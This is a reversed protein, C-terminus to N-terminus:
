YGAEEEQACSQCVIRGSNPGKSIVTTAENDCRRYISDAYGERHLAVVLRECTASM